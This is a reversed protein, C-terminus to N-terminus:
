LDNRRECAPTEAAYNMVENVFHSSSAPFFNYTLKTLSNLLELLSSSGSCLFGSLGKSAVWGVM